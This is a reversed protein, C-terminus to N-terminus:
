LRTSLLAMHEVVLDVLATDPNRASSVAKLEASSVKFAAKIRKSKAPTLELASENPKNGLENCVVNFAAKVSKEDCGVVIVAATTSEPKLGIISLAKKIQRQASAYLATEVALSKSLNRKAKFAAVANLAAFYLHRWTAVLDADFFQVEVAPPVMAIIKEALAKANGIKVGKFASIEIFRGYEELQKLM